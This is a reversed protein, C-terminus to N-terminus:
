RENYWSVSWGRYFYSSSISGSKFIMTIYNDDSFATVPKESGCFVCHSLECIYTSGGAYYENNLDVYDLCQKLAGHVPPRLSFDNFELKIRHGADHTIIKFTCFLNPPYGSPYNPSHLVGQSKGTM